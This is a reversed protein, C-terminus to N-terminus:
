PTRETPTPPPTSTVAALDARGTDTLEYHGDSALTIWGAALAERTSRDARLDCFHRRKRM